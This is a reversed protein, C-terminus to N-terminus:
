IAAEDRGVASVYYGIVWFHQGPLAEFAMMRVIWLPRESRMRIKCTTDLAM